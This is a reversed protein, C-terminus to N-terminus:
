IKSNSEYNVKRSGAIVPSRPSYVTSKLALRMVDLPAPKGTWIRFAKAGQHLLMGLGNATKCGAKKAAGLLRTEAPCYIMDYVARTQRLPFRKEDLPPPDGRKLGLSTANLVLDVKAKPYGAVVQVAPFRKRIERALAEAKSATRNALFLEAVNEFALKLAATRGAGGAGLLLVRAGRLKLKLEERLSIAIADADTNYGIARVKGRVVEFKITNVAGFMKASDDLEDMMEVALLKHPVTLNLGAFNMALAGEIAARLNKPDVEFALYRWNLGLAKFAANQMAPSASHAIPRGLVACLRTVANIDAQSSQPVRLNIRPPPSVEIRLVNQNKNVFQRPDFYTLFRTNKPWKQTTKKATKKQNAM